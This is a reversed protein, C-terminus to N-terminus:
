QGFVGIHKSGREVGTLALIFLIWFSVIAVFDIRCWSHCLYPINRHTKDHTQKLSLQFPLLVYDSKVSSHFPNIQSLFTPKPELAFSQSFQVAHKSKELATVDNKPGNVTNDDMLTARSSSLAFPRSLNRNFNHLRQTISFNCSLSLQAAAASSSVAPAINTDCHSSFVTFLSSAPIEPDFLFRSVCIRACAELTFIIFLVFLVYDEWTQFYGKITPSTSDDDALM